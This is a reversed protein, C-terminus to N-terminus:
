FTVQNYSSGALSPAIHDKWPPDTGEYIKVLSGIEGALCAM